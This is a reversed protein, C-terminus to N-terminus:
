KKKNDEYINTINKKLGKNKLEPKMIDVERSKPLIINQEKKNSTRKVYKDLTPPDIKISRMLLKNAENNVYLNSSTDTESISCIDDPFKVDNYEEQLLDNNDVVKFYGIASKIFTDYAYKVDPALDNPKNNSILEKFLNFIRKRYFNLDERNIQKERQRIVHKEMTEKNLLCDLTIQNVLSQSMYFLYLNIKINIRTKTKLLNTKDYRKSSM